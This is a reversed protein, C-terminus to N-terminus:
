TAPCTVSAGLCELRAAVAPVVAVRKEGPKTEKLVAIKIAM